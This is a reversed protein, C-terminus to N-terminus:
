QLPSFSMPMLIRNSQQRLKYAKGKGDELGVGVPPWKGPSRAKDRIEMRENLSRYPWIHIFTNLEGFESYLLACVPGFQRRWAMAPEWSELLAPLNGSEYHYIRMEFFPGVQAPEIEPSFPFPRLIDSRWSTVFADIDPRARPDDEVQRRVQELHELDRYPWLQIVENLPGIEPRWSAALPSYAKRFEYAQKMRSEVQHAASQKLVYTLMEYIM